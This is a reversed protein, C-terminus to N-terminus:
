PLFPFKQGIPLSKRFESVLVDPLVAIRESQTVPCLRPPWIRQIPWDILPMLNCVLSPIRESSLISVKSKQENEYPPTLVEVPEADPEVDSEVNEQFIFIIKSAFIVMGMNSMRCKEFAIM